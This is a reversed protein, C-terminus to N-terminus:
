RLITHIVFAVVPCLVACTLLIVAAYLARNSGRDYIPKPM